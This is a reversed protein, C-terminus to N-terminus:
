LHVCVHSLAVGRRSEVWAAQQLATYATVVTTRSVALAKALEREAPLRSGPMILGRQIASQIGRSLRAHLPGSGISWNGLHSLFKRVPMLGINTSNSRKKLDLISSVLSSTSVAHRQGVM